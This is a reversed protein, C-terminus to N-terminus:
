KLHELEIQSAELFNYCQKITRTKLTLLALTFLEIGEQIWKRKTKSIVCPVQQSQSSMDTDITSVTTTAKSSSNCINSDGDDCSSNNIKTNTPTANACNSSSTTDISTKTM